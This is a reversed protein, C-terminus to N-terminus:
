SMELMKQLPKKASAILQSSLNIEAGFPSQKIDKMALYIKELSNLQMYPCTNCASCGTNNVFPCDYFTASPNALKM